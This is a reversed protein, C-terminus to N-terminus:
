AAVHGLEEMDRDYKRQLTELYAEDSVNFAKAMRKQEASLETPRGAAQGASANPAPTPDAPPAAGDLGSNQLLKPATAIFNRFEELGNEKRCQALYYDKAAPPVQGDAIAQDVITNIATEREAKREDELRQREAAHEQRMSAIEGRLGNVTEVLADYHARPVTDGVANAAPEAPAPESAPPAAPPDVVGPNHKSVFDSRQNLSPLTLNPNNTLAASTFYKVEPLDEDESWRILFVPSIYLYEGKEVSAYGDATWECRGWIGDDRKQMETIRAAAKGPKDGDKWMANVSGHDWDLAIPFTTADIAGQPDDMQFARRDRGQVIPGNPTMPIWEPVAYKPGGDDDGNEGKANVAQLDLPQLVTGFVVEATPNPM